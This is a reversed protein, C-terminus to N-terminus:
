SLLWSRYTCPQSFSVSSLQTLESQIKRFQCIPQAYAPWNTLCCSLCSIWVPSSKKCLGTIYFARHCKALKLIKAMSWCHWLIWNDKCYIDTWSPFDVLCFSAKRQSNQEAMSQHHPWKRGHCCLLLHSTALSTVQRPRTDSPLLTILKACIPFQGWFPLVM